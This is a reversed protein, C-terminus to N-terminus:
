SELEDIQVTLKENSTVAHIWANSALSILDSNASAFYIPIVINENACANM